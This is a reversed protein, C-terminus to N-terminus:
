ERHLSTERSVRLTTATGSDRAASDFEGEIVGAASLGSVMRLGARGDQPGARSQEAACQGLHRDPSGELINVVPKGYGGPSEIAVHSCGVSSLWDGLQLVEDTRTAFTRREKRGKTLLCAAGRKAQVDLGCCCEYGVEM